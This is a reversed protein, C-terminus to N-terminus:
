DPRALSKDAGKYFNVAVFVHINEVPPLQPPGVPASSSIVLTEASIRLPREKPLLLLAGYSSIVQETEVSSIATGLSLSLSLFSSVSEM